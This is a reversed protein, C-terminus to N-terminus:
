CKSIILSTVIHNNRNEISKSEIEAFLRSKSEIITVDSGVVYRYLEIVGGALADDDGIVMKREGVTASPVYIKDNDIYGVTTM